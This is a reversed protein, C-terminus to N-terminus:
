PTGATTRESVLRRVRPAPALVAAYTFDPPPHCSVQEAFVGVQGSDAADLQLEVGSAGFSVQWQRLTKLPVKKM